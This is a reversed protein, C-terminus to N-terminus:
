AHSISLQALVVKEVTKGANRCKMGGADDQALFVQALRRILRKGPPNEFAAPLSREDDMPMWPRRTLQAAHVQVQRKALEFAQRRLSSSSPILERCRAMRKFLNAPRHCQAARANNHPVDEVRVALRANRRSPESKQLVHARFNIDLYVGDSADRGTAHSNYTFRPRRADAHHAGEHLRIVYARQKIARVM